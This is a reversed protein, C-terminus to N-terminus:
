TPSIPGQTWQFCRWQPLTESTEGAIEGEGWCWHGRVRLPSGAWDPGHTQVNREQKLRLTAPVRLTYVVVAHTDTPVEWRAEYISPSSRKSLHWLSVRLSNVWHRTVEGGCVGAWKAPPPLWLGLKKSVRWCLPWPHSNQLWLSEPKFTQEAMGWAPHDPYIVENVVGDWNGGRVFSPM